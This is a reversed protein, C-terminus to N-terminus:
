QRHIGGNDVMQSAQRIRSVATDIRADLFGGFFDPSWIGVLPKALLKGSGDVLLVTPTFDVDFREALAATTSREGQFDAIPTAGNVDVMRMIVKDQYDGSRLMPKLFEEELQRCYGCDDAAFELLIAVGQRRAETGDRALNSAPMVRVGDNISGGSAPVAAILLALTILCRAPKM